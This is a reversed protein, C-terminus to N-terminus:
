QNVLHSTHCSIIIFIFFFYLGALMVVLLCYCGQLRSSEPQVIRISPSVSIQCGKLAYDICNKNSILSISTNLDHISLEVSDKQLFEGDTVSVILLGPPSSIGEDWHSYCISSFIENFDEVTAICGERITDIEISYDSLMTVECLKQDKGCVIVWSSPYKGSSNEGVPCVRWLLTSIVLNLRDTQLPQELKIRMKLKVVAGEPYGLAFRNTFFLSGHGRKYAMSNGKILTMMAPLAEIVITQKSLEEDRKFLTIQMRRENALFPYKTNSFSLTQLISELHNSRANTNFFVVLYLGKAQYTAIVKKDIIVNCSEDTIDKLFLADRPDSGGVIEVTLKYRLIKQPLASLDVSCGVGINIAESNCAHESSWREPTYRCSRPRYRYRPQMSICSKIPKSPLVQRTFSSVGSRHDVIQFSIRRTIGCNDDIGSSSFVINSIISWAEDIFINRTVNAQPIQSVTQKRTKAPPPQSTPNSRYKPLLMATADSCILSAKLALKARQTDPISKNRPSEPTSQEIEQFVRKFRILLVSPSVYVLAVFEDSHQFTCTRVEKWQISSDWNSLDIGDEHVLEDRKAVRFHLESRRMVDLFDGSVPNEITITITANLFNAEEEAIRFDPEQKNEGVLHVIRGLQTQALPETNLVTVIPPIVHILCYVLELKKHGLSVQLSITRVGVVNSSMSYYIKNIINVVGNVSVAQDSPLNIRVCTSGSASHQVEGVDGAAPLFQPQRGVVVDSKEPLDNYTLKDGPQEGQIINAEVFGGLITCSQKNNKDDKLECQSTGSIVSGDTLTFESGYFLNTPHPYGLRVNIHAEAMTMKVIPCDSSINSIALRTNSFWQQTSLKIIIEKQVYDQADTLALWIRQLVSRVSSPLCGSPFIIKMEEMQSNFEGQIVKAVEKGNIFVKNQHAVTRPTKENHDGTGQRAKKRREDLYPVDEPLGFGFYGHSKMWISNRVSPSITLLIPWHSTHLALSEKATEVVSSISESNTISDAGSEFEKNPFTVSAVPCLLLSLKDRSYYRHIAAILPPKLVNLSLTESRRLCFTGGSSPVCVQAEFTLQLTRNLLLSEPVGQKSLGAAPVFCLAELLTTVATPEEPCVVQIFTDDQNHLDKALVGVHTGKADKSQLIICSKDTNENIATPFHSNKTTQLLLIDGDVNHLLHATILVRQTSPPLSAITSGTQFVPTPVESSMCTNPKSLSVYFLAGSTLELLKWKHLSELHDRAESQQQELNRLRKNMCIIREEEIRRQECTVCLRQQGLLKQFEVRWQVDREKERQLELRRQLEREKEQQREEKRLQREMNIEIIEAERAAVEAQREKERTKERTRELERETERLRFQESEQQRLKEQYREAEREREREAERRTERKRLDEIEEERKSERIRLQNLEDRLAKTETEREDKEKLIDQFRMERIEENERWMELMEERRQDNQELEAMEAQERSVAEQGLSISVKVILDVKNQVDLLQLSFETSLSDTELELASRVAANTGDINIRCHHPHKETVTRLYTTATSPKPELGNESMLRVEKRFKTYKNPKLIVTLKSHRSVSSKHDSVATYRRGAMDVIDINEEDPISTIANPPTPVVAKRTKRRVPPVSCPISPSCRSARRTPQEYVDM